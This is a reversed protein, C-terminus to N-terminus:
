NFTGNPIEGQTLKFCETYGGFKNKPKYKYKYLRDQIIKEMLASTINSMEIEKLIKFNYKAKSLTKNLRKYAGHKSIGVKLFNETESFVEVIYLYGTELGENINKTYYKISDFRSTLRSRELSCEKCGVGQQHNNPTTEFYGHIPCKVNFKVKSNIYTFNEYTYKFNHVENFIDIM